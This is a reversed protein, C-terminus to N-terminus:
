GRYYAHKVFPMPVIEAPVPKGRVMLDLKTGNAAHAKDVYGMAVARGLTPAFGGSTVKGVVKGAIAIESGERAISKGEPLLGVRKRPAGEAIQKRVVDAGPFGGHARRDKGISWL